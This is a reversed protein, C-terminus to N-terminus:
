INKALRSTVSIEYHTVPVLNCTKILSTSDTAIRSRHYFFGPENIVFEQLKVTAAVYFACLLRM